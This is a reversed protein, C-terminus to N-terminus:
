RADVSRFIPDVSFVRTVYDVADSRRSFTEVWEGNEVVRWEVFAVPGRRGAREMEWREIAVQKSNPVM